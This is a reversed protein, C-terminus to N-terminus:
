VVESFIMSTDERLAAAVMDLAARLTEGDPAAGLSIRVAAAQRAPQEGEAVAFADSPVVALGDQRRLHATFALSSWRDPLRLWIHLGEPHADFSGSPLIQRAIRQRAACERRIAKVVANSTGDRVWSAVLGTLLPSPMQVNARLATNLRAAQRLDPAVLFAVRLAPSLVKSVTAVHFTIDPALAALAALPKAPLLGYADDEIICLERRRAIEIIAQRRELPMTVTTPNQITPICYLAKAGAEKRCAEEVADPLMGDGDSPVGVLRVGLQAAAGRLGPYTYADTLIVEGPQAMLGLLALLAPQAGPSILVREPHVEGVTPLLWAAGAAREDLTGPGSRYTLFESADSRSLLNSFGRQLAEILPPNPQPPLNMSLDLAGSRQGENSSSSSGKRQSRVFTGRGVSAEVVGRKRAEAYARTVTTLNVGLADAMARHTPLRAGPRLQGAAVADSIADAIALFIPGQRDSLQPLWDRQETDDNMKRLVWM